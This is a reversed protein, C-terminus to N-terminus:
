NDEQCLSGVCKGVEPLVVHFKQLQTWRYQIVSTYPMPIKYRFNAQIYDKSKSPMTKGDIEHLDKEGKLQDVLM